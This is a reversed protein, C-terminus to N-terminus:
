IVQKSTDARATGTEKACGGMTFGACGVGRDISLTVVPFIVESYLEPPASVSKEWSEFREHVYAAGQGEALKFTAEIGRLVDRVRFVGARVIAFKRHVERERPLHVVEQILMHSRGRDADVHMGLAQAQAQARARTLTELPAQCWTNWDKIHQARVPDSDLYETRSRYRVSTKITCAILSPSVPMYSQLDCYAPRYTTLPM